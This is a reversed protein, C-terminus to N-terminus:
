SQKTIAKLLLSYKGYRCFENFFRNVRYVTGEHRSSIYLLGDPGFALSTPNAMSASLPVVEGEPSIRYLSVPVHQGKTGSITTYINGQADIAPSAVPHLNDALRRAGTFPVTNSQREGQVIHVSSLDAGEAVMGLLLVPTTLVPRTPSTGFVIRCTALAQPDLGACSLAVHGGSVAAQPIVSHLTIPHTM